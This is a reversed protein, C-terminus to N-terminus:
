EATNDDTNWVIFRVKGISDHFGTITNGSKEYYYVSGDSISITEKNRDINYSLKEIKSADYFFSSHAYVENKGEDSAQYKYVSGDPNFEMVTFPTTVYTTETEYHGSHEGGVYVPVDIKMRFIGAERFIVKAPFTIKDEVTEDDNGCSFLSMSFIAVMIFTLTTWSIQKQKM